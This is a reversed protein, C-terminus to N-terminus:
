AALAAEAYNDNAVIRHSGIVTTDHRAFALDKLGEDIRNRGWEQNRGAVRRRLAPRLARCLSITSAGPVAGPDSRSIVVANIAM